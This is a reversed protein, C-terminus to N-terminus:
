ERMDGAEIKDETAYICCVSFQKDNMAFLRGMLGTTLKATDEDQPKLAALRDLTAKKSPNKPEIVLALLQSEEFTLNKM